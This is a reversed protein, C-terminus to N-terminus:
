SPYLVPLKRTNLLLSGVFTKIIYIHGFTLKGIKHDISVKSVIM